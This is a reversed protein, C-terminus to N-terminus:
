KKVMHLFALVTNIDPSIEMEEEPPMTETIEKEVSESLQLFGNQIQEMNAREKIRERQRNEGRLCQWTQQQKRRLLMETGTAPRRRILIEIGTAPRRRLLM